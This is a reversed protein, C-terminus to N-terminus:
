DQLEPPVELATRTRGAPLFPARFQIQTGGLRLEDGDRLRRRGVVREGNVFSGNERCGTM